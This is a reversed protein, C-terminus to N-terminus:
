FFKPKFNILDARYYDFVQKYSFTNINGRHLIINGQGNKSIGGSVM